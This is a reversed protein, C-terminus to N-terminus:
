LVTEWSPRAGVSYPCFSSGIYGLTDWYICIYIQGDILDPPFKMIIKQPPQLYIIVGGVGKRVGM